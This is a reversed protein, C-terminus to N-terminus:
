ESVLIVSKLTEKMHITVTVALFNPLTKKSFIGAKTELDIFHTDSTSKESFRSLVSVWVIHVTHRTGKTDMNVPEM